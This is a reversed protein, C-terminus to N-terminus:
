KAYPNFTPNTTSAFPINYASMKKLLSILSKGKKYERSKEM